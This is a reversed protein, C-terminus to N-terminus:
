GDTNKESKLPQETNQVALSSAVEKKKMMMSTVKLETLSIINAYYADLPVKKKGMELLETLENETYQKIYYFFRWVIWYMFKIKWFGNLVMLAACMCSQKDDNGEKLITDTIHERTFNKMWKIKYIRGRVYVNEPLDNEVSRLERQEEIDPQKLIKSM